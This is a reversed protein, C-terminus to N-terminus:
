WCPIATPWGSKHLKLSWKEYSMFSFGRPWFFFGDSMAEKSDSISYMLVHWAPYITSFAFVALVICIITHGIREGRSRRIINEPNRKM